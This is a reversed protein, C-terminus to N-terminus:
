AERRRRFATIGAGLITLGLGLGGVLLVNFGTFALNDIPPDVPSSASATTGGPTVLGTNTTVSATNIITGSSATVMADLTVSSSAGDALPSAYACLVLQGTITCTWHTGTASIPQLGAPVDDRITVGTAASPGLNTVAMRYTAAKDTVLIGSTLDKTFHLTAGPDVTVVSTSTNNAPDPDTGSGTVAATNSVSPVATAGLQVKLTITGAYGVLMPSPFVCSVDQGSHSCSWDTGSASVFTEGTPLTDTVTVPGPDPTTGANAIALSYSLEKGAILHSSSATKVISLDDLPNVTAVDTSSNNSPDPDDTTSSVSATNSVTPYAAGDIAVTLTIPQAPNPSSPSGAALPGSMTCTVDQGSVGCSWDSPLSSGDASVFTEGTPLTDTVTPAAADSPGANSVQLTYTADTGPTFNGTHSKVISLDAEPAVDAVDTASNNSPDPDDTTSSVSATNSITTATTSPDLHVTLTIVGAQNPSSASGAALSGTLDCTVTTIGSSTAPNCTWGSGTASVYTEESPLADSVSPAASDSPGANSVTISYTADQGPTFTAATHSKVISLDASPTVTATDTSSNNAPVPDSTTSSVTATNDISSGTYASDLAVTLTIAEAPTGAGLTGTMTCTIDQGSSICSWNTGTASVLTEGSPLTDLVIPADADSPGANSVQLTYSADVGPTFDGTHSKTISLDASTVITTIDESTNNAPDPDPTISSVAASNTLTGPSVDSSVLVAISLGSDSGGAELVSSRDCTVVQGTASCSWGSGSSSDYSMGTPLTDVVRPAAADSPGSNTISIAYSGTTGATFSGTHSKAISLDASATGSTSSDTSSNNAPVPDPTTSSVHATNDVHAGAYSSAITAVLTISSASTGAALDSTMTCTVDQGSHTCSWGTGSVSVYSLYSPLTDTVEPTVADSPGSNAVAITYHVDIGPVFTDASDHTKSISLDASRVVSADNSSTNNGPTPDSLPGTVTASNTITGPALSSSVGVTLDIESVQGSTLGGALTCTVAQGVHSCSWGDSDPDSFSSYTTGTPLTDTVSITGPSDTPGNNTIDLKYTAPSGATFSGTHSKVISLDASATVTGTATSSNNGTSPDYTSSSVSATNSISGGPVSTLYSSPITVGVAITAATVGSALSTSYTCSISAGGLGLTCTWNTGSAGTFSTGTPATDTVVPANAPDPGNNKVVLNYTNSPGGAVYGGSGVTKAIQLDATPVTATATANSSKYLATANGTAGTNDQGNAYATNTNTRSTGNQPTATYTITITNTLGGTGSLGALQSASWTLTQVHGTVSGSPDALPGTVVTGDALTITSSNSGSTYTWYAPLTDTVAVNKTLAATTDTIALRWTFATGVSATSGGPTTKTVSLIPFIPAVNVSSSVSPYAVYRTPTGTATAVPVGYYTNVTATNAIVQGTTLGSSTSLMTPVELTASAGPALTTGGFDWTLSSGTISASGQSASAISTNSMDLGTPLPDTVTTPYATSSGTNTVTITYTFANGPTPSATSTTKSITLTPAVVGLSAQVTASSFTFSGPAPISAPAVGTTPNWYVGITNKLTVPATVASGTHYTKAPYATYTMTITRVGTSQGLNGIWWALATAGTGVVKTPTGISQTQVDGGCSGSTDSCTFSAGYADFTMGDPLTDIATFNPLQLGAPVTVTVTYTTDVGNTTTAPSAVKAVTPGALHVTDAVTASYTTRAGPYTTTDLSTATATVNNTFTSSGVAPDPMDATYTFTTTSGVAVSNATNLTWTILNGGTITCTWNAPTTVCTPNALGAPLSDAIAVDHAASANAGTNKLTVTYTVTQGPTYPGGPADTKTVSIKPEVVTTSASATKSSSTGTPSNKWGLTGTNTITGGAANGGAGTVNAVTAYFSIVITVPNGTTTQFTAPFDLEVTNSHTAPDVLTFTGPLAGAAGAGVKYTASVAAPTTSYTLKTGLPDTVTANYLSVGAPVTATLTYLVPEGITASSPTNITPTRTKALTPSALTVTATQDAAPANPSVVSPDINSSPYYTAPTGTGENNPAQPQYSVVGAHNVLQEGAAVGSPVTMTYSLTYTGPTTTSGAPVDIGTWAIRTSTACTGSDSIGSTQTACSTIQSPLNDWVTTNLAPLLGSNSLAIHYVVQDGDQVTAGPAAGNVTFVTKTLSEVVPQTLNYGVQSRLSVSQGATNLASLKMLNQVFTYNNGQAPPATAVLAFTAQFTQSPSVYLGPDSGIVDGLAFTISDPTTAADTISAITTTDGTAAAASGGVYTTNPPLFDTVLANHTYVGAPFNVRLHFCITDGAEYVPVPTASSDVYTATSCDLTGGPGVPQSITKVITPVPAAQSARSGNTAARPTSEGSYIVTHGGVSCTPDATPSGPSGDYCTGNVTGAISTTNSLSDGILTPTTPAIGGGSPGQYYSRDLVPYTLVLSTNPPLTGLNWTIDFTGNPNEVVSTYPTSPSGSASICEAAASDSYVSTPLAGVPCMGSPVHDTLSTATSYRYESTQYHLSFTAITGASFTSTSSSKQVALDIAETTNTGEAAIPNSGAGLTGSYTGTADAITTISESDFTEAGSNNDLNAGQHLSAATPTVGSWTATNSRLPVAAVFNFTDVGSAALNTLTWSVQTYVGSLVSGAATTPNTVTTVSTPTPCNSAAAKIMSGSGPYEQTSGPNTGSANTTNDTDGCGLFELAAPLYVTASVTNTAHVANNTATVTYTVHHDHVGRPLEGEPSPETVAVKLPTIQTTGTSSDSSTYSTAGSIPAGTVSNFQPVYRPDTNAYVSSTDTYSSGPLVPNPGLHTGTDTQGQLQFSLAQTSSPQLDGVNSWILTTKGVSPEGALITPDGVSSAVGSNSLSSTGAVYSVGLPLIDVFSANYIPTAPSSTTNAATLTVTAPTGYLVTAPASEGLGLQPAAATATSITVASLAAISLALFVRRFM